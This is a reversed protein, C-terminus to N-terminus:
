EHKLEVIGKPIDIKSFGENLLEQFRVEEENSYGEFVIRDINDKNFYFIEDINFGIPYICGSYDFFEERDNNQIVPGRNLIMLKKVGDKLYVISGIPLM